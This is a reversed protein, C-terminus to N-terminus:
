KTQLLRESCRGFTRIGGRLEQLQEELLPMQETPANGLSIHSSEFMGFPWSLQLAFM